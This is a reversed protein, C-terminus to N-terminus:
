AVRDIKIYRRPIVGLKPIGSTEARFGIYKGNGTTVQYSRPQNGLLGAFEKRVREPHEIGDVVLVINDYGRDLANSLGELDVVIKAAVPKQTEM